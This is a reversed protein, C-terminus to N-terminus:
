GPPLCMWRRRRRISPSGRWHFRDKGLAPWLTPKGQGGAWGVSASRWSRPGQPARDPGRDRPPTSVRKTGRGQKDGDEEGAMEPGTVRGVGKKKLFGKHQLRDSFHKEADMDEREEGDQLPSSSAEGAVRVAQFLIDGSFRREVDVFEGTGVPTPVVPVQGSALWQAAYEDGEGLNVVEEQGPLAPLGGLPQLQLGAPIAERGRLVDIGNRSEDFVVSPSVLVCKGGVAVKYAKRNPSFGIFMGAVSVPEFKGHKQLKVYALCDFRRLYKATPVRKTFLEYRCKGTGKRPTLNTLLVATPLAEGWYEASLGAGILITRVREVVTRNYREAVGNQEPNGPASKDHVTGREDLWVTFEKKLFETGNDSRIRQTVRGTQMEMGVMVKKM